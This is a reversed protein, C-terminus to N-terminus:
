ATRVRMVTLSVIGMAMFSPFLRSLKYQVLDADDEAEGFVGVAVFAADWDVFCVLVDEVGGEHEDSEHEQVSDM